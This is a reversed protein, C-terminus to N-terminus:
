NKGREELSKAIRSLDKSLTLIISFLGCYIFGIACGFVTGLLLGIIERQPEMNRGINLGYIAFFLVIIIFLFANLSSLNLVIWSNLKHHWLVTQPSKREKENSMTIEKISMTIEKISMTIEKKWVAIKKWVLKKKWVAIIFLTVIAPLVLFEFM